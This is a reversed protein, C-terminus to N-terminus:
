HPTGAKNVTHITTAFYQDGLKIKCNIKRIKMETKKLSYHYGHWGKWNIGDAFSDHPGGLYAGNINSSHCASYWWGGRYQTACNSSATDQDRDKTSFKYGSHNGM